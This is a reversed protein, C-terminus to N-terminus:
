SIYHVLIFINKFLRARDIEKRMETKDDEASAKLKNCALQLQQIQTIIAASFTLFYFNTAL